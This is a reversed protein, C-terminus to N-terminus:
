ELIRLPGWEDEVRIRCAVTEGDVLTLPQDYRRADARIKGSYMRPDQGDKTYYIAFPEASLEVRREGEELWLAEIEPLDPYLGRGFLQELVVASRQPIYENRTREVERPWLAHKAVGSNHREVRWESGRLAAEYTKRPNGWRAAEAFLAPEIEAIRRDFLQTVHQPTLVGNHFFHKGIRDSVLVRFEENELLRQYLWTPNSRDANTEMPFPGLRDEILELLSHEADWVIFRFGISQKRNILGHWNNAGRDKGFWSISSDLNGTYFLVLMYDILNVPDVLRKLKPDPEGNSNLGLLQAYHRPDALDRQSLRDLKEWLIRNGDTAGVQYHRQQDHDESYGGMIKVVDFNKKKGGIYAEGFSAEPRECTNFIGWYHGNIYLHRFNGRPSTQGMALHLDRSLQDRIYITRPNFGHHWSYQQTCRLDFNDFAQAGDGGFLDYKLKGQGYQKRFFFRMAHKQYRPHRSSGGRMRVGADIQFGAEQQGAMPLLELSCNREAKRGHWGAHAYIGTEDSFLNVPEIALSYSPIAWLAQLLKERLQPDQTIEADMGYNAKGAGWEYWYDEPPLGDAADDIRDRPFIYSRTVVPTPAYGPKYGQARLITTETIELKEDLVPSSENPKSGDTTYRIRVDPEASRSELVFGEQYLGHPQTLTITSLAGRRALSNRRGPTPFALFGPAATNRGAGDVPVGFSVDTKQKRYTSEASKAEQGAERGQPDVLRLDDGDKNLQFNTHLPRDVRRRDKGSAFVILYADPGLAVKPFVWKQDAVKSDTLSWGALSIPESSSNHIEIWDVLEGQEDVLGRENDAMFESIRLSSAGAPRQLDVASDKATPDVEDALTEEKNGAIANRVANLETLDLRGNGDDDFPALQHRSAPRTQPKPPAKEEGQSARKITSEIWDYLELPFDKVKGEKADRRLRELHKVVPRDDQWIDYEDSLRNWTRQLSKEAAEDEAESLEGDGNTDYLKLRQRHRRRDRIYRPRKVAFPKGAQRIEERELVNLRGDRDADFQKLARERVSPTKEQSLGPGLLPSGLACGVVVGLARVSRFSLTCIVFLRFGPTMLIEEFVRREPNGLCM